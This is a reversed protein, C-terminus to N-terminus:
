GTEVEKREMHGNLEDIQRDTWKEMQGETQGEMKEDMQEDTWGEM